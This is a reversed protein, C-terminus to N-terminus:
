NIKKIKIHNIVIYKEINKINNTEILKIRIKTGKYKLKSKKNTLIKEVSEQISKDQEIASNTVEVFVMISNPFEDNEEYNIVLNNERLIRYIPANEGPINEQVIEQVIEGELIDEDMGQNAQQNENISDNDSEQRISEELDQEKIASKACVIEVFKNKDSVSIKFDIIKGMIQTQDATSDYINIFDFPSLSLINQANDENIIIKIKTIIIRSNKYLYNKILSIAELYSNKESLFFTNSEVPIITKKVNNIANWMERNLLENANQSTHNKLCIYRKNDKQVINNLKYKKNIEWEYPNWNQRHDDFSNSSKHENLCSYEFNKYVVIENKEFNKNPKWSPYKQGINGINIKISKEEALNKLEDKVEYSIKFNLKEKRHIQHFKVIALKGTLEYKNAYIFDSLNDTERYINKIKRVKEIKSDIVMYDSSGISSGIEPWNDIISNPTFTEISNNPFANKIHIFLDEEIIYEQNWDASIQVNLSNIAKKEIYESLEIIESKSIQNQNIGNIYHNKIKEGNLRNIDFLTPFNEQYIKSYVFKPEADNEINQVFSVFEVEVYNLDNQTIEANLIRNFKGSFIPIFQPERDFNDIQYSIWCAKQNYVESYKEKLMVINAICPKNESHIIEINTIKEADIAHTKPNFDEQNDIWCFLFKSM